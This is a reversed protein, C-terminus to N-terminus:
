KKRVNGVTDPEFGDTKEVGVDPELGDTKGGRGDLEPGDTKRITQIATM